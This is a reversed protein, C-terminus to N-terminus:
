SSLLMFLIGFAGDGEGLGGPGYHGGGTLELREKVATTHRTATRVGLGQGGGEGGGTIELRETATYEMDKKMGEIAGERGGM